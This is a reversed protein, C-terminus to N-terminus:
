VEEGEPPCSSSSSSSSSSNSITLAASCDAEENGAGTCALSCASLNKSSRAEAALSATTASAFFSTSPTSEFHLSNYVSRRPSNTPLLPVVAVRIGLYQSRASLPDEVVTSRMRLASSFIKFWRRSMRNTRRASPNSNWKSKEGLSKKLLSVNTFPNLNSVTPLSGLRSNSGSSSKSALVVSVWISHLSPLFQVETSLLLSRSTARALM